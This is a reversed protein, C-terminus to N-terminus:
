GAKRRPRKSNGQSLGAYRRRAKEFARLAEPFPELVRPLVSKLYSIAAGYNTLPVGAERAKEMRVLMERRTIMCAGCHIILKYASLNEPFDRGCCVDFKLGTKGYESLWRPIKLRGIDDQLPHHSCAEAILVRDGKKLLGIAAAGASLEALDGKLRAFLLSFTTCRVDPPTELVMKDVVQSDCVSLAPKKKLRQLMQKYRNERVVLCAADGDLVDRIAHVQPLILRGKPAQSDIPIILAAIEGPAVLDRILPPPALFDDPALALLLKKLDNRCDERGEARVSSCLLVGASTEKAKSLFAASPKKLDIKNVAVILPIGRKKAARALEAEHKTWVDPEAVLIAADSRDLATWTRRVRLGGLASADDIGGTDLFVVPGLPLLEMPKEVVDTTTGPVPSTIAVDQGAVLNLFSSKGVNARGFIGIQLRLSKPTKHM